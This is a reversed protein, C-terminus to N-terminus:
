CQNFIRTTSQTLPTSPAWEVVGKFCLVQASTPHTGGAPVAAKQPIHISPIILTVLILITGMCGCHQLFSCLDWGISHPLCCMTQLNLTPLSKLLLLRSVQFQGHFLSQICVQPQLTLDTSQTIVESESNYKWASIGCKAKGLSIREGCVMVEKRESQSRGSFEM